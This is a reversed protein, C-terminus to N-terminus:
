CHRDACESVPACLGCNADCCVLGVSCTNMGCPQSFPVTPGDDCPKQSCGAGPKACTGCSPNCCVDGVDCTNPGCLASSPFSASGCDQRSCAEGPAACIGCKPSCCVSGPACTATGCVVRQAELRTPPPQAATIPPTAPALVSSPPVPNPRAVSVSANDAESPIDSAVYARPSQAYDLASPSSERESKGALSIEEPVPPPPLTIRRAYQPLVAGAIMPTPVSPVLIRTAGFIALPGLVVVTTSVIVASLRSPFPSAMWTHQALASGVTSEMCTLELPSDCGRRGTNV